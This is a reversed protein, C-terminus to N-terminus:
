LGSLHCLRLGFTLLIQVNQAKWSPCSGSGIRVWLVKFCQEHAFDDCSENNANTIRCSDSIIKMQMSHPIYNAFPSFKLNLQM